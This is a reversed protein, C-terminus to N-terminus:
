RHCRSHSVTSTRPASTIDAIYLPGTHCKPTRTEKFVHTFYFQCLTLNLIM